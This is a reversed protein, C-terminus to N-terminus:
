QSFESEITMSTKGKFRVSTPPTESLAEPRLTSKFTDGNELEFHIKMPYLAANKKLRQLINNKIKDLDSQEIYDIDDPPMLLGGPLHIHTKFRLEGGSGLVMPLDFSKPAGDPSNMDVDPHVKYHHYAYEIRNIKAKAFGDNSIFLLCEYPSKDRSYDGTDIFADYILIQVEASFQPM